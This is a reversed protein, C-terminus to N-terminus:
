SKIKLSDFMFVSFEKFTYLLSNSFSDMSLVSFLNSYYCSSNKWYQKSYYLDNLENVVGKVGLQEGTLYNRIETEYNDIDVDSYVKLVYDKCANDWLDVNENHLTCVFGENFIIQQYYCFGCFKYRDLKKNNM